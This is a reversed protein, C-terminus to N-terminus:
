QKCAPSAPPSIRNRNSDIGWGAGHDVKVLFPWGKEQTEPTDGVPVWGDPDSGIPMVCSLGSIGDQTMVMSESYVSMPDIALADFMLTHAAVFDARTVVRVCSMRRGALQGKKADDRIADRLNRIEINLQGVAKAQGRIAESFDSDM